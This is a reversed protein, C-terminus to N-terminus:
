LEDAAQVGGALWKEAATRGGVGCGLIHGGTLSGPFGAFDMKLGIVLRSVRFSRFDSPRELSLLVSASVWVGEAQLSTGAEQAFFM